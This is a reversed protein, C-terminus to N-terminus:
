YVLTDFLYLVSRVEDTIDRFVDFNVEDAELAPNELNITKMFAVLKDKPITLGEMTSSVATAALRMAMPRLDDHGRPGHEMDPRPQVLSLM